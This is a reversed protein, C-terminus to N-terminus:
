KIIQTLRSIYLDRVQAIEGLGKLHIKVYKKKNKLMNKWSNDNNGAMDNVAHDGAVLMLPALNIEGYKKKNLLNFVDELKPYGEVCAVFFNPADLQKFTYDMAAYASNAFHDTGHGMFLMATNQSTAYENILIKGLSIYDDSISLLPRLIDIEDFKNEMKKIYNVMKEYEHGHMIHTPLVIIKKINDNLINKLAQHVNCIDINDRKKLKNIIMQSTFARYVAYKPFKMKIEDELKKITLNCATQYSTGFSVVLIAKDKNFKNEM